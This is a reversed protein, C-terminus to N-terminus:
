DRQESVLESVSGQAKVQAINRAHTRPKPPLEIIGERVLRDFAPEADIATLRAVPLGRETVVISEGGQVRDLVRRLHARLDRVGIELQDRSVM